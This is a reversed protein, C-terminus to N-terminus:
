GKKEKLAQLVAFPSDELSPKPGFETRKVPKNTKKNRKGGRKQEQGQRRSSSRDPRQGRNQSFAKGKKLRFTALDPKEEAESTKDGKRVNQDQGLSEESAKPMDDVPDNMKTHGMAELIKYLDDISCGLWEAMQHTAKFVGKQASDYIANIVRDLMDIRVARPGYVPYGISRYFDDRGIDDEGLVKSVLGDGPVPAPLDMDNYLAWLLGRLKVAAPKNLDPQFVLVPGLRIRWRRLVRRDDQDLDKLLHDISARPVTGMSEFVHRAVDRALPKVAPPAFAKDVTGEATGEPKETKPSEKLAHSEPVNFVPDSQLAFLPELTAHLHAEVVDFLKRETADDSQGLVEVRPSLLSEGKRLVAVAKGPLPNNALPQYYVQGDNKIIFQTYVASLMM